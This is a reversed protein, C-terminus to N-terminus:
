RPPGIRRLSFAQWAVAPNMPAFSARDILAVQTRGERRGAHHSSYCDPGNFIGYPVSPHLTAHAHLTGRRWLALAEDRLGAEALAWVVWHVTQPWIGANEGEGAPIPCWSVEPPPPCSFPRSCLTLGLPSANTTLATRLATRREERTGAGGLAPWSQANIFVRGDTGGFEQGADTWGRAFYSGTWATALAGRLREAAATFPASDEGRRQATAALLDAARAALGGNMVSEGRGERGMASLYDNWDGLWIRPVGHVGVGITQEVWDWARLLHEWLTASGGDAWPLVTDLESPDVGDSLAELAGVLFWLENDSEHPTAAPTPQPARFDHGKPLDGTSWQLKALWHLSSRALDPFWPALVMATEACERVGFGSWGYGGLAIYSENLAGDHAAFALLQGFSWRCEDAEWGHCWTPAVPALRAAWARREAAFDCAALQSRIQEPPTDGLCGIWVRTHCSAQPALELASELWLAHFRRQARWHPEGILASPGPGPQPGPAWAAGPGLHITAASAAEDEEGHWPALDSRLSWQGRVASTGRNTITVEAIVGAGGQWPAVIAVRCEVLRGDGLDHTGDFQAYGTGYCARRGLRAEGPLLSHLGDALELVPTLYCSSTAM